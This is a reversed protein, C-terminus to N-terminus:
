EGLILIIKGSLSTKGNGSGDLVHNQGFGAGLMQLKTELM